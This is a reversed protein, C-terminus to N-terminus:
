LLLVLFNLCLKFFVGLFLICSHLIPGIDGFQAQVCLEHIRLCHTQVSAKEGERMTEDYTDAVSEIQLIDRKFVNLAKSAAEIRFQVFLQRHIEHNYQLQQKLIKGRQGDLEDLLVWIRVMVSVNIDIHLEKTAEVDNQISSNLVRKETDCEDLKTAIDSWSSILFM